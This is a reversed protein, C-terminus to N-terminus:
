GKDVSPAENECVSFLVFDLCISRKKAYTLIDNFNKLNTGDKVKKM